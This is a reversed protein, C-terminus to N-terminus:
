ALTTTRLSNNPLTQHLRKRCNTDSLSSLSMTYKVTFLVNLIRQDLIDPTYIRRALKLFKAFLKHKTTHYKYSTIHKSEQAAIRLRHTTAGGGGM